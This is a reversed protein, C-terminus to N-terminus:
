VDGEEEGGGSLDVGELVMTGVVGVVGVVEGWFVDVVVDVGGEAGGMEGGRGGREGVGVWVVRCAGVGGIEGRRRCVVVVM